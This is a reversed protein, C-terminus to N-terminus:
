MVQKLFVYMSDYFAYMICLVPKSWRPLIAVFDVQLIVINGVHHEYHFYIFLYIFQMLM